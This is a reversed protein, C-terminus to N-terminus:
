FDSLLSRTNPVSPEETVADRQAFPVGIGSSRDDMVFMRDFTITQSPRNVNPQIDVTTQRQPASSSQGIRFMLRLPHEDFLM